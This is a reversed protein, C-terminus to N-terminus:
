QIKKKQAMIWHWFLVKALLLLHWGALLSALHLLHFTHWDLVRVVVAAPEHWGALAILAALVPEPFLLNDQLLATNPQAAPACIPPPHPPISPTPPLSLVPKLLM